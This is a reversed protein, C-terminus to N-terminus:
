GRVFLIGGRRFSRISRSFRFGLGLISGHFGLSFRRIRRIFFATATATSTAAIAALHVSGLTGHTGGCGAGRFRSSGRLAQRRSYEVLRNLGSRRPGRLAASYRREGDFRDAIGATRANAATGSIGAERGSQRQEFHLEATQQGARRYFKTFRVVGRDTGANEDERIGIEGAIVVDFGALCKSDSDSIKQAAARASAAGIRELRLEGLMEAYRFRTDCFIEGIM